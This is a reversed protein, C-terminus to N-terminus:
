YQSIKKSALDKVLLSGDAYIDVAPANPVAHLVRIYSTSQKTRAEEEIPEADLFVYMTIDGKLNLKM